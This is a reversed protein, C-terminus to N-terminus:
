QLANKFVGMVAGTGQAAAYLKYRRSLWWSILLGILIFLSVVVVIWGIASSDDSAQSVDIPNSPDYYLRLTQNIAYPNETGNTTQKTKYEKNNVNYTLDMICTYTTKQSSTAVGDKTTTTTNVNPQCSVTTITADVTQSYKTKKTILYVGILIGLIVFFGGFFLQITTWVQGLQAADGYLQSPVSQTSM